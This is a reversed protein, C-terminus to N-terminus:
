LISTDWGLRSFIENIYANYSIEISPTDPIKFEEPKCDYGNKRLLVYLKKQSNISSYRGKEKIKSFELDFVRSDEIVQNRIDSLDALPKGTLRNHLYHVALYYENMKWEKLINTITKVTLYDKRIRYKEMYDELREILDEPPVKKLIGQYADLSKIFNDTSEYGNKPIPLEDKKYIDIDVIELVLDCSPCIALTRDESIELKDKCKYCVGDPIDERVNLDVFYLRAIRFFNNIVENLLNGNKSKDISISVQKCRKKYMELIPKIRELYTEKNKKAKELNDYLEQLQMQINMRDVLTHPQNLKEKLDTVLEKEDTERKRIEDDLKELVLKHYENINVYTDYVKNIEVNNKKHSGGNGVLPKNGMVHFM